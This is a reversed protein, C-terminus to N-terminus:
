PVLIDCEKKPCQPTLRPFTSMFRPVLIKKHNLGYKEASRKSPLKSPTSGSGRASLKLMAHTVNVTLTFYRNVKKRLQNLINRCHLLVQDGCDKLAHSGVPKVDATFQKESQSEPSLRFQLLNTPLQV